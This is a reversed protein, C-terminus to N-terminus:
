ASASPSSSVTEQSVSRSSTGAATSTAAYRIPCCAIALTAAWAPTCRALKRTLPSRSSILSATASRPLPKSAESSPTPSDEIRSRASSSPPDHSTDEPGPPVSTVATSGSGVTRNSGAPISPAGHRGRDPDHDHVVVRHEAVAQPEGELLGPVDVDDGLGPVPNGTHADDLLLSGVDDQHVDRHGLQVPQRGGPLRPRM